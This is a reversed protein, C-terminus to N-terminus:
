YATRPLHANRASRAAASPVSEVQGTIRRLAVALGGLLYWEYSTVGYSAFSFVINLLLWVQMADVTRHVFSDEPWNACARKCERFASFISVILLIFIAMGIFGLEMAAEAYLNHAPQDISNFNANAERSTGLGHGFFPRRLAVEFGSIIGSLRGEATAANKEGSGVISLYRDQLDGGLFQFGAAAVVIAGAALALRRKSKAIIGVAVIILGLFGSRSGTLMLAYICLPAFLLLTLRYIRSLGAAFWLFPMVTCIIFALGNPNVIDSPAGSLRNLYEWNAESAASGWYGETVHLYLPEMVRILQCAVFLALFRKLRTESDVFAVTFYYFAVGKILAEIGSRLVSGPWEVFPITALAYVILVRLWKDTDTTIGTKRHTVALAALVAVLILDIRIQGLLAIREGLHLFWSAVFLLYLNFGLAAM